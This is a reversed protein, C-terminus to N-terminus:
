ASKESKEELIETRLIEIMRPLQRKITKSLNLDFCIEEPEIGIIMVKPFYGMHNVNQLLDLVQVDHLSTTAKVFNGLEEPTLRYITGPAHGGKVSDVIVVKEHKLFVDLLDFICTGGDVLLVENSWAAEEIHKLIHIGVGDDKLLINGIGVVATKKM